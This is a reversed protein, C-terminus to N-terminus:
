APGFHGPPQALIAHDRCWCSTVSCAPSTNARSGRQGVISKKKGRSAVWAPLQDRLALMTFRNKKKSAVSHHHAIPMKQHGAEKKKNKKADEPAM